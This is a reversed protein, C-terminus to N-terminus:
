SGGRAAPAPEGRPARSAPTVVPTVAAIRWGAPTRRLEVQWSRPGRAPESRVVAGRGDVLEYGSLEDVLRVTVRDGDSSLLQVDLAVHQLGRARLGRRDLAAVAAAERAGAASGPLYVDGVRDREPMALLAARRALLDAVETVLVDDRVAPALRAPPEDASRASAWGGGAAVVVAVGAAAVPRLWPRRSRRCRAPVATRELLSALVPLQALDDAASGAGSLVGVGVGDLLTTGADVVVAEVSVVGHWLGRRHLADLAAAVDQVVTEAAVPGDTPIPSGAKASVVVVGDRGGLVARVPVLRRHRMAVLRAAVARWDPAVPAPVHRLVVDDGTAAEVALWGGGLPRGAVYGRPWWAPVAM